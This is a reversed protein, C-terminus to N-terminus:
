HGPRPPFVPRIRAEGLRADLDGRALEAAVVPLAEAHAAVVADIDRREHAFTLGYCNTMLVGRAILERMFVTRLALASAGPADKFTLHRMTAVGGPVIVQDLGNARILTEIREALAAGNRWLRGCVDAERIKRLTAIAAALSLAEGNFTGSYFVDEFQRMLEARGVLAAIPMGNGMGKGFCALDPTVGYHEQAGGPAVRFGTVIEDFIAVAGHRRALDVVGRLFGPAPEEFRGPEVIVAAVSHSELLKELAGLDNFPFAHSLSRVAEPIGYPRTTTAISWDHWGHYGCLVVHDRGTAHRALRVAAGTADSGSKALKVMEACPVTAVLLEALEVELASSLSMLMGRSLQEQVARDVDPDRYGLLIPLLAAMLDVYENGDADWCRGGHGRELFLPAAGGPFAWAAKSATNVGQPIVRRARELLDQSQRFSATM